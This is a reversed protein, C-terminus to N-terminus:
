SLTEEKVEAYKTNERFPQFPRGGGEYFKGFFEVFQLRNTHVYAGLLNIALNLAHGFIFIIIFFIVGIVNNPLMSGMQNIVSAIVGTALGLALLRSYSLVDSLWGTINYLDYAGLAIRLAPNKNSRGSMLVIGIAGAAAMVQALTNLWGPFVITTQAISAFIDSPLLMLILGILLMFWLVVDCFFDMVKGDKLCLYGKIALGTFLHIVGFLLSYVLLKMPDDLPVFWLAPVTVTTGFFKESVIDVINGFYGGFLIGWVLTSLGCYFFLKLSKKMGQSMRPFKLVLVGCVISVLAGYAADSLMMGFFFVYFFSMITTPDIEGKVPLGYSEVVGEMNASFPNNKLIVPPEEDEKLEEVDVMCDYKKMLGDAVKGAVAEPIYGSIVFTRESQPLTGLVEYKDARVRYYDAVIKLRDREAALAKIKEEIESIKERYESIQQELKEKQRAPVEEWTQSPRAFGESRLADEVAGADEKLCIVALYVTSQEQSVIYVDASEADPAKEALIEYVKEATTGGPMTGPFFVTRDTKMTQLPVDLNLWPTLSEISNTLKAISALQEAHERDLDYIQKAARLLDRREDQVKMEEEASILKKGELAAFMSKEEPVYRELIDLAQDVSASAKEFGQKKGATDMRHFDEDEDLIHDVELTGLSQLKELIAKRDKKLACISIRQMKLVAM